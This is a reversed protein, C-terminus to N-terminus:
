LVTGTYANPLFMAQRLSSDIMMARGNDKEKTWAMRYHGIDGVKIYPIIKAEFVVRLAFSTCLGHNAKRSIDDIIMNDLSDASIEVRQLAGGESVLIKKLDRFSKESRAQAESDAYRHKLLFDFLKSDTYATKNWFDQYLQKPRDFNQGSL